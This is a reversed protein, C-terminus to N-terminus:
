GLNGREVHRINKASVEEPFAPLNGAPELRKRLMRRQQEGADLLMAQNARQLPRACSSMASTIWAARSRPDDIRM